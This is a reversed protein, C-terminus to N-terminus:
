SPAPSELQGALALYFSRVEEEPWRFRERVLDVQALAARKAEETAAEGIAKAMAEVDGPPVLWVADLEGLVSRSGPLDTAVVPIGLALYELTKTPLSNRYNEIDRLPSLGVSAEAALSLASPNPLRGTLNLAVDGSDARGLLLAALSDDVRGVATLDVGALECAALADEIGRARTLDGIYVASGDGTIVPEPYGSTRPHNVFVPHDSQFLRRYGPEALTVLLTREALWYLVRALLRFPPKAWAPVWEKNAIQAPLDEHVDFVIPRHRILRALAGAPITEPDHLIVVRWQKDLIMRMARLNRRLRRGPLPAWELGSRDTPGPERTAYTIAGVGELSRILRERIRTDDAAHVTTVVLIAAERM